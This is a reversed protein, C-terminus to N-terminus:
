CGTMAVVLVVVRMLLLAVVAIFFLSQLRTLGFRGFYFFPFFSVCFFYTFCRFFCFFRSFRFFFFFFPKFFRNSFFFPFFFYGNLENVQYVKRTGEGAELACVYRPCSLVMGKYARAKEGAKAMAEAAAALKEADEEGQGAASSRSGGGSGGMLGHHTLALARSAEAM